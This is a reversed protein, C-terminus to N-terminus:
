MGKLNKGEEIFEDQVKPLRLSNGAKPRAIGKLICVLFIGDLTNPTKVLINNHFM